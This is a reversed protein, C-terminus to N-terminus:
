LQHRAPAIYQWCRQGLFAGHSSSCHGSVAAIRVRSLSRRCRCSASRITSLHLSCIRGYTACSPLPSPVRKVLGTLDGKPLTIGASEIAVDAGPEWRSESTQLPSRQHTTSAMAPWLSAPRPACNKMTRTRRIPLVDAEVESRGLARRRCTRDNPQRRSCSWVSAM